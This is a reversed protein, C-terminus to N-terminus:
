QRLPDLSSPIKGWIELEAETEGDLVPIRSPGDFRTAPFKIATQWLISSYSEVVLWQNLDELFLHLLPQCLISCM